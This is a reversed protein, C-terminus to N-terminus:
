SRVPAKVVQKVADEATTRDCGTEEMIHRVASKSNLQMVYVANIASDVVKSM